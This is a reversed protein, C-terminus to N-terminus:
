EVAAITSVALEKKGEEYIKRLFEPMRSLTRQGLIRPRPAGGDLKLPVWPPVYCQRAHQADSCDKKNSHYFGEDLNHPDAQDKQVKEYRTRGNADKFTRSPDRKVRKRRPQGPLIVGGCDTCVGRHGTKVKRFDRQNHAM